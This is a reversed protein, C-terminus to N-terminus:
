AGVLELQWRMEDEDLPYDTGGRANLVAPPPLRALRLQLQVATRMALGAKWALAVIAKANRLSM